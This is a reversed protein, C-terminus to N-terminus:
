KVGRSEKKRRIMLLMVGALGLVAAAIWVKWERRDHVHTAEARPLSTDLAALLLDASDATEISITMPHKAATLAPVELDYVGPSSEIAVGKLEGGDVEVKAGSVPANTAFQDLYIALKKGELVAVMEFEETAALARPLVTQHVPAPPAGHEEGGHGFAVPAVALLVSAIIVNRKM